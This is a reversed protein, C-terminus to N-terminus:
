ELLNHNEITQIEPDPRIFDNGNEPWTATSLRGKEPANNPKFLGISTFKKKGM